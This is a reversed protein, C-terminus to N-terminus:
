DPIVGDRLLKQYHCRIASEVVAALTFSQNNRKRYEQIESVLSMVDESLRIGYQKPAEPHDSSM